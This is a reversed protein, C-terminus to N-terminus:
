IKQLVTQGIYLIRSIDFTHIKWIYLPSGYLIRGYQECLSKAKITLLNAKIETKISVFPLGETSINAPKQLKTFKLRVEYESVLEINALHEDLLM